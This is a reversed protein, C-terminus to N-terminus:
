KGISELYVDLLRLATDKERLTCAQLRELVQEEYQVRQKYEEILVEDPSVRLADCIRVFTLIRMNVIGREIETYTRDSIEAAEAVQAQTMRLKKRATYLYDGIRRLDDILM